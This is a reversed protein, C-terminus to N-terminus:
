PTVEARLSMEHREHDLPTCRCDRKNEDCAGCYGSSLEEHEDADFEGWYTESQM